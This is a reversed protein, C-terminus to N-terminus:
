KRLYSKIEKITITKFGFNLLVFIILSGIGALIANLGATMAFYGAACSAGAIALFPLLQLLYLKKMTKYFIVMLVVLVAFESLVAAAAAGYVGFKPILIFNASINIIGGAANALIVTKEKGWAILPSFYVISIYIFFAGTMLIRLTWPTQIYNDGFAIRVVPDAYTFLGVTMISGVFFLIMAYKKMLSDREEHTKRRSFNPFFAGQLITTPVTAFLLINYAAFYYGKESNSAMFGLMVMNLNNYIVVIFFIIGISIASKTLKKWFEWDFDFKIAGYKRIYYIVMWLSNLLLSGVWIILALLTHDKNSVFIIVGLFYLLSTIVQRLAPIEM